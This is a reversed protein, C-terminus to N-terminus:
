QRKTSQSTRSSLASECPLSSIAAHVCASSLSRFLWNPKLAVESERVVIYEAYAGNRAIDPRSFVENGKQFKTVGPGAAAVTGSVDWGPIFPLPYALRATLNGERIKWDVPHVAAAHVRILLEGDGPEPRPANEFRLVDAGGYHHMRVAKMNQTKTM